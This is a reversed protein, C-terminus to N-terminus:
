KLGMLLDFDLALRHCKYTVDYSYRFELGLRMQSKVEYMWYAGGGYEIFSYAYPERFEDDGAWYYARTRSAFQTLGILIKPTVAIQEILSVGGRFMEPADFFVGFASWDTWGMVGFHDSAFGMTVYPNMLELGIGIEFHDIFHFVNLRENLIWEYKVVENWSDLRVSDEHTNGSKPAFPLYGSFSGDLVTGSSDSRSQYAAMFAGASPARMSCGVMLLAIAILSLFKVMMVFRVCVRMFLM